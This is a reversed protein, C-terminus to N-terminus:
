QPVGWPFPSDVSICSRRPVAGAGSGVDACIGRLEIRNWRGGIAAPQEPLDTRKFIYGQNEPAPHITINVEAGTHLGKGFFSISEKLTRQKEAM